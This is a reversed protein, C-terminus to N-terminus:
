KRYEWCWRVCYAVAAIDLLATLLIIAASYFFRIDRDEFFLVTTQLLAFLGMIAMLGAILVYYATRTSAATITNEREDRTSLESLPDKAWNFKKKLIISLILNILMWIILLLAFFSLSVTLSIETENNVTELSPFLLALGFLTFLIVNNACRFLTRSM